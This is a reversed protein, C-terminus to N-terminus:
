KVDSKGWAKWAESAIRANNLKKAVRFKGKVYFDGHRVENEEDAPELVFWTSDGCGCAHVHQTAVTVQRRVEGV